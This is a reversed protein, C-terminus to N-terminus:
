ASSPMRSTVVHSSNLRTSKRDALADDQPRLTLGLHDGLRRRRRAALRSPDEAHVQDAAPDALEDGLGLEDEVPIGLRVVDRREDVRVRSLRLDNALCVHSEGALRQMKVGLSDGRVHRDGYYHGLEALADGLAGDGAPQFLFLDSSCM